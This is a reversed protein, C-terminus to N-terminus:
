FQRTLEAVAECHQTQPFMDFPTVSDLQYGFTVLQKIDRALMAPACSVYIIKKPQQKSLTKLVSKGCGSRPPDLILCTEDLNCQRQTYFLLRETKGPYFDYNLLGLAKANENAAQIAQANAEIGFCHEARDALMLAFLGIGCYADILVKCESAVFINQVYDIVQTIVDQNVQFFSGLPVNFTRDLLCETITENPAPETFTWVKGESNCRITLHVNELEQQSIERLKTNVEDRAIPCTEIPLISRGHVTWFGPKGPGHVVLKNRYGYPKTSPVVPNIPPLASVWGM